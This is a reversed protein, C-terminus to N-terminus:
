RVSVALMYRVPIDDTSTRLVDIRYEGGADVRGTVIPSDQARANLPTGSGANVVRLVAENRGRELRVDLLQGKPVFVVYSDTAGALLLGAFQTPRPGARVGIRRPARSSEAGAAAPPAAGGNPDPRPVVISTIRLQAGRRTVTMVDVAVLFGEKTETIPAGAAVAARFEPTFIDDFREVIAAPSQFPVRVGGVSVTVPYEVLAAVAARDNGELARNLEALFLQIPSQAHATISLLVSAAVLRYM